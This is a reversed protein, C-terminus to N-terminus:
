ELVVAGDPACRRCSYLAHVHLVPPNEHDAVANGHVDTLDALRVFGKGAASGEPPVPDAFLFDGHALRPPAAGPDIGVLVELHQRHWSGRSAWTAQAGPQDM